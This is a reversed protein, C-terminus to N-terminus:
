KVEKKKNKYRGRGEVIEFRKMIEKPNNVNGLYEDIITKLSSEFNKYHKSQIAQKLLHLDVAKHENKTEIFSLGFDIFYVNNDKIIMNSTTLDGHIINNNHLLAINKGIIKCIKIREKDDFENFCDAIKKGDIFEMTITFNTKNLIKPVDIIKEAKELILIERKNRSTIIKEDLEKIRYLKSIREKSIYNKNDINFKFIKAEAGQAILERM